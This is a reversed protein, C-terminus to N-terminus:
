DSSHTGLQDAKIVPASHALVATVREDFEGAMAENIYPYFDPCRFATLDNHMARIVDLAEALTKPAEPLQRETANSTQNM